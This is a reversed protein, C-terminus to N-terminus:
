VCRSTYLLCTISQPIDRLQQKGKGITTERARVSDKGEPAEATEKVTVTSLTKEATTQAQVALSSALLMVGFAVQTVEITTASLNSKILSSPSKSEINKRKPM